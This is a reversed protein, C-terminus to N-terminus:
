RVPEPVRGAFHGQPAAEWVQFEAWVPFHDSVQLAQDDTLGFAAQVDFVGWNGM